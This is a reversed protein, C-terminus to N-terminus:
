CPFHTTLSGLIISLAPYHRMEPRDRLERV